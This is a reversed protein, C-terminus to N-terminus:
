LAQAGESSAYEKRPQKLEILFVNSIENLM